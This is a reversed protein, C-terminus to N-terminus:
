VSDSPLSVDGVDGVGTTSLAETDSEHEGDAEDDVGDAPDPRPRRWPMADPMAIPGARWLLVLGVLGLITILWGSWDVTTMGFHMSVHNSTPVVVMLNPGVRWPGQAGSVEWNPFYSAKVLVPSGARTVDFSISDTGTVINTVAVPTTPTATPTEGEVIRQWSEPGGSAPWVNWATPDLYWPTVAGLWKKPAVGTLVAPNNDLPEILPSDAVEFVVWPGSAAVQKLSSNEQGYSIMQETIAMYYKVGLMQLHQVGLDFQTQDAPGPVYPLDRQPNSAGYSLEDQNLFHFPTTASAEFYLGEMSGICGDTWFPLLMLAMPTGYRDHQEEHEWMARGCGNSQGLGDMTQVIDHYEPYAPKGEYGSFNWRAWSPVFSSEKTSLFMWHYRGDARVGGLDVKVPGLAITDPMARLPMALATIGVFAAILATAITVSRRPADPDRSTLAAITRGLEAVGLAALLYLILFWFPLLRANWLKGQPLVVVAIATFSGLLALFLGGRRKWALSMVVGLLALVLVWQIPPSNVLQPDLIKRQFLLDVYNTKKEWGMDNMYGSQLYFPVLWWAVLASGVVGTCVLWWVRKLFGPKRALSILLWVIAGGIAFLLPILHTLGTLALLIPAIVRQRGTELGRGVFGLFLIAFSLSISFAFEGALTSAINGGYISFSRDFLFATAAVAFLPPAPFPLRTLRAFAWCAIPLTLLGSVAILKFAIGYPLIFSLLAIALSPLVMYFQYAPFGAYWDPTWGTLRFSPLLHDRMYAPGWVHAGMDGGAPTSSSFIDSPSLQTFTFLVCGAVIALTIWTEPGWRGLSRFSRGLAQLAQMSRSPPDIARGLGAVIPDDRDVEALPQVARKSLDDETM